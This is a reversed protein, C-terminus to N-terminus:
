NPAPPAGADYRLPVRVVAGVVPLGEATWANLRFRGSLALAADGFGLGGPEESEVACGELAGGAGVTCRMVVRAVGVGAKAAAAPFNAKFAEIDPLATWNVKGTPRKAPDLMQPTFVVPIQAYAGSISAGGPGESPGQFSKALSQAARGFGKGKPEEALVRCGKIWGGDGFRCVLTARGGEGAKAARRPYGAVVEDYSPASAWPINSLLMDPRAASYYSKGSPIYSGAQAEPQVFEVPVTVEGEIPQGGKMAPTMLMQPTLAIAAQGFGAGAPRESAVSCGFLAGQTSVKCTIVAKGGVGRAFARKPWVSLIDAPTPQKIWDPESDPQAAMAGSALLAAGLAACASVIRGSRMAKGWGEGADM